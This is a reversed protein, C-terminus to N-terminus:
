REAPFITLMNKTGSHPPTFKSMYPLTLLKAINTYMSSVLIFELFKLSDLYHFAWSIIWM